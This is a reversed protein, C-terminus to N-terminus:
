WVVVPAMPTRPPGMFVKVNSPDSEAGLLTTTTLWCTDSAGTIEPFDVTRAWTGIISDLITVVQDDCYVTYFDLEQELLVDGNVYFEPPTYSIDREFALTISALCLLAIARVFHKM